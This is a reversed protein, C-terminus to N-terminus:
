SWKQDISEAIVSKYNNSTDNFKSEGCGIFGSDLLSKKWNKKTGVLNDYAMNIATKVAESRSNCHISESIYSLKFLADEDLRASIMEKAKSMDYSQIVINPRDIIIEDSLCWNKYESNEPILKLSGSTIKEVVRIQGFYTKVWPKSKLVTPKPRPNARPSFLRPKPTVWKPHPKSKWMESPNWWRPNCLPKPQPTKSPADNTKSRKKRPM